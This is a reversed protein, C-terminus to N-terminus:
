RSGAPDPNFEAGDRDPSFNTLLQDVIKTKVGFNKTKKLVPLWLVFTLHVPAFVSYIYILKDIHASRNSDDTLIDIM